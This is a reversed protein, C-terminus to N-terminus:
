VEPSWDLSHLSGQEQTLFLTQLAELMTRIGWAPQWMDLHYKSASLCIVKGVEFRHFVSHFM